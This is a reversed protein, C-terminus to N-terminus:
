RRHSRPTPSRPVRPRVAARRDPATRRSAGGGPSVLDPNPARGAQRRDGCGRDPMVSPSSPGHLVACVQRQHVEAPVRVREVVQGVVGAPRCASPKVVSAALSWRTKADGHSSPGVASAETIPSEPEIVSAVVTDSGTTRPGTGSAFAIAAMSRSEPPRTTTPTPGPEDGSSWSLPRARSRRATSATEVLRHLRQPREPSGVVLREDAAEVRGLADLQLGPRGPRRTRRDPDAAPAGVGPQAAGCSEGVPPQRRRVVRRGVSNAARRSRGAPAGRRGLALVRGVERVRQRGHPEVDGVVRGLGVSITRSRSAGVILRGSSTSRSRGASRARRRTRPSAGRRERRRRAAPARRAPRRRPVGARATRRAADNGEDLLPRGFVRSRPRPGARGRRVWSRREGAEGSGGGICLIALHPAQRLSRPRASLAREM